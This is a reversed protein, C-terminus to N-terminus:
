KDEVIDKVYIREFFLRLCLNYYIFWTKYHTQSKPKIINNDTFMNRSKTTEESKIETFKVELKKIRILEMCM